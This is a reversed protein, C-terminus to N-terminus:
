GLCFHKNVAFPNANEMFRCKELKQVAEGMAAAFEGYEQPHEEMWAKMDFKERGSINNENGNDMYRTNRKDQLVIFECCIECIKAM